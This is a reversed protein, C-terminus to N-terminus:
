ERNQQRLAAFVSRIAALMATRDPAEAIRIRGFGAEALPEAAAPSVALLTTEALAAGTAALRRALIAGNRRSWVTVVDVEGRALASAVPASPPGTEEAQYLVAETVQQGSEALWGKLDGAADRGRPHLFTRLGSRRALDALARADGDATFCNLFGAKRAAAATAKGVCLAPLDRRQTLAALARVGNASTFLLGQTTFPLKLEMVTPAIRTLPWILCDIGEDELMEAILRSDDLPRTLLVLM